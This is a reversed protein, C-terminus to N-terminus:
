GDFENLEVLGAFETDLTSDLAGGVDEIEFVDLLHALTVHDLLSLVEAPHTYGADPVCGNEALVLLEEPLGLAEAAAQLGGLDWIPECADTFSNHGANELIILQRPGPWADYFPRVDEPSFAPDTDAIV